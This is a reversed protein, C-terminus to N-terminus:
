VCHSYSVFDLSPEIFFSDLDLLLLFYSVKSPENEATDFGIKALLYENSLMKRTRCSGCAKAGSRVSFVCDFDFHNKSNKEQFKNNKM